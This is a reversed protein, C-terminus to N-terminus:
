RRATEIARHMAMILCSLAACLAAGNILAFGEHSPAGLGDFDAAQGALAAIILSFLSLAFLVKPM